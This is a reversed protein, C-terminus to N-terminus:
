CLFSFSYVSGSCHSLTCCFLNWLFSYCCCCCFIFFKTLNAPFVNDSCTLLFFLIICVKNNCIFFLLLSVYANKIRIKIIKCCRSLKRGGTGQANLLQENNQITPDKITIINRNVSIIAATSYLLCFSSVVLVKITYVM